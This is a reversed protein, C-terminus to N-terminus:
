SEIVVACGAGTIPLVALIGQKPAGSLTICLLGERNERAVSVGSGLAQLRQEAIRSDGRAELRAIEGAASVLSVRQAALMLAGIVIGLVLLIAPIIIVFEATM